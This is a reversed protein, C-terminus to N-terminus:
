SGAHQNAEESESVGLAAALARRARFLLAKAANENMRMARALDGVALDGFYRLVLAERQRVPLARLAQVLDMRADTMALGSRDAADGKLLRVQARREFRLRRFRDRLINRAVVAVWANLSDVREGRDSREWARALAEQVAEEAEPLSGSLLSLGAV